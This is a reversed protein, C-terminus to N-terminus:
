QKTHDQVRGESVLKAHGVRAMGKIWAAVGPWRNLSEKGNNTWIRVHEIIVRRYNSPLQLGGRRESIPTPM